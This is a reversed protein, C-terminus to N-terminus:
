PRDPKRDNEFRYLQHGTLIELEQAAKLAEKKTEASAAIVELYQKQLEVYTAVPVAGRRYHEDAMEAAERFKEAADGSWNELERLKSELTLAAEAVRHEVDRQKSALSSQAQATRAQATEIAGANRNWIPLPVSLGIGAINQSEGSEERSFFPGVTVAPYRENKALSVKFGQQELEARRVRLAFATTYASNLLTPLTQPESFILDSKSVRREANPPQGCLQNLDLIATKAALLAENAKHRLGLAHTEIIRLELLSSVGVPERQKLIGALEDLREAVKNAAVSSEEAVVAQYAAMRVRAVFSLRFEELGLEALKLDRNAIAKRLEIRGPYEFTQTVSLNFVPGEGVFADLKNHANKYGAQTSLEPNAMTGATKLSGKAAAIEARYFNLEPNKESAQKVLEEVTVEDSVVSLQGAAYLPAFVLVLMASTVPFLLKSINKKMVRDFCSGVHGSVFPM